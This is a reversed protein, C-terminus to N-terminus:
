LLWRAVRQALERPTVAAKLVCEVAGLQLAQDAVEDEAYNTLVVIPPPGEGRERVSALFGLGDLRPMRIDLLVLDPREARLVDLGVRGDGAEMVEFGALELGRKWM